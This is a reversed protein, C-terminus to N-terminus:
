GAPDASRISYRISDGEGQWAAIARDTDPDLALTAGSLPGAPAVEAPTDFITRAPLADIGRAAFLRQRALDPAGTPTSLPETWLLIADGDPGPALDSLLEDTGPAAITGITQLGHQDIPATRLVWRGATVGAWATMVSESSLRILQPSGGPPALADPDIFRELLRPKGFLVGSMSYDIYVSTQARDQDIWMVIARNDDSLLTAIHPHSGAPGLRQLAHHAGSAPLDRAYISGGQAWALLADSRFDMAVTLAGIPATSASQVPVAQGLTRAFYREIELRLPGGPATSYYALAVDGLYATNLARPADGALGATDTAPRGTGSGGTATGTDDVATTIGTGTDTSLPAFPGDARGQVVLAETSRATTSGAIVIQGHPGAVASLPGLPAISTHAGTRPITPTSSLDRDGIVGVRAGAGGPCRPGGDWVIAGPGTGRYPKDDPFLVRPAGSSGCSSLM